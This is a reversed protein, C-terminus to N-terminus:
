RLETTHVTSQVNNQLPARVPGDCVMKVLVNKSPASPLLPCSGHVARITERGRDADLNLFNFFVLAAGAVPQVSSGSVASTDSSAACSEMALAFIDEGKGPRKRGDRLTAAPFFDREHMADHGGNLMADWDGLRGGESRLLPFVTAGSGVPQADLYVIVSAIRRPSMNAPNQDLHLNHMTFGPDYSQLYGEEIHAIPISSEFLNGIRADISQMLASQSIRQNEELLCTRHSRSQREWCNEATTTAKLLEIEEPSVFDHLLFLGFTDVHSLRITKSPPWKLAASAAVLLACFCVRQKKSHM